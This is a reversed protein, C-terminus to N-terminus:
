QVHRYAHGVCRDVCLQAMVVYVMGIYAMVIYAMVICATICTWCVQGPLRDERVEIHMDSCVDTRMSTRVDECLYNAGYM